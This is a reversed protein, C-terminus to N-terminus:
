RRGTMGQEVQLATAFFVVSQYYLFLLLERDKPAQLRVPFPPAASIQGGFVDHIHKTMAHDNMYINFFNNM